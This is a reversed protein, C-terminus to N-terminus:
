EKEALADTLLEEMKALTANTAEEISSEFARAMFPDADVHKKGTKPTHKATVYKGQKEARSKHGHVVVDFGNEIWFAVHSAVDTCGVKVRPNLGKKSQIQYSIDEKLIGPPLSTSEPTPEDTREPAETQMADALVIGGAALSEEVVMGAVKDPLTKLLNEWESTDFAFGFDEM